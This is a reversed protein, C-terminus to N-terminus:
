EPILSVAEGGWVEWLFFRLYYYVSSGADCKAIRDIGMYIFLM